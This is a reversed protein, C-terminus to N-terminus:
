GLLGLLKVKRFLSETIYYYYNCCILCDILSSREAVESYMISMFKLCRLITRSCLSDFVVHPLCLVVQRISLACFIIYWVYIPGSAGAKSETFTIPGNEISLIEGSCRFETYVHRVFVYLVMAIIM